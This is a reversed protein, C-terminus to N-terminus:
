EVSCTRPIERKCMAAKRGLEDTRALAKVGTRSRDREAWLHPPARIKESPFGLDRANAFFKFRHLDAHAYDRYSGRRAPPPILEIEEYRRIMRHSVGSARSADGISM